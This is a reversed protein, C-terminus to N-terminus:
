YSGHLVMPERGPLSQEFSSALGTDIFVQNAQLNDLMCCANDRPVALRVILLAHPLYVMRM